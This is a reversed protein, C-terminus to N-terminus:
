PALIEVLKRGAYFQWQTPHDWSWQPVHPIHSLRSLRCRQRSPGRQGRRGSPRPSMDSPSFSRIVVANTYGRSCSCHNSQGSRELPLRGSCLVGSWAREEWIDEKDLSSYLVCGDRVILGSYQPPTGAARTVDVESYADYCKADGHLRPVPDQEARRRPHPM